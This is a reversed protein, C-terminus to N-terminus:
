RFALVVFSVGSRDPPSKKSVMGLRGTIDLLPIRQDEDATRIDWAQSSRNYVASPGPCNSLDLKFLKM